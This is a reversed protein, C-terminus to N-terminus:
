ELTLIFVESKEPCSADPFTRVPDEGAFSYIRCNGLDNAAGYYAEGEGSYSGFIAYGSACVKDYSEPCKTMWDATCYALSSGGDEVTFCAPASLSPSGYPYFTLSTDGIAFSGGSAVCVTEVGKEALLKKMRDFNETSGSPVILYAKGLYIKDTLEDVARIHSSSYNCIAVSDLETFCMKKLAKLGVSYSSGYGPYADTLLTTGSSSVVIADKTAAAGRALAIKSDFSSHYSSALAAYLAITSVLGAAAYKVYRRKILVLLILFVSGAAVLYPSFPYNLSVTIGRIPAIASAAGNVLSAFRDCVFSLAAFVPAVPSFILTLAGLYLLVSFLPIFILNSLPAILSAEDFYILMVPLTFIVVTLTFLFSRLVGRFLGAFIGKGKETKDLGARRLLAAAACCGLYATFSMIMAASFATSPDAIIMATGCVSLATVGDYSIGAVSILSAAFCVLSARVVSPSLGTLFMYGIMVVAVVVCRTKKGIRLNRLIFHLAAAIFSVHMGSIAILHSIGIRSFDRKVANSLNSRNGLLVADVLAGSDESMGSRLKESLLSNFRKIKIGLSDREGTVIVRECYAEIVLGKSYCYKDYDSGDDSLRSMEFRATIVDGAELDTKTKVAAGFSAEKGDADTVDVAYCNVNGSTWLRDTM